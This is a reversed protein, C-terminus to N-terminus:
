TETEELWKTLWEVTRQVDERSLDVSWSSDVAVRHNERCDQFDISDGDEDSIILTKMKETKKIM